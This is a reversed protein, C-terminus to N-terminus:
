ARLVQSGSSKPCHIPASAGAQPPTSVSRVVGYAHTTGGSSNYGIAVIVRGSPGGRRRLRIQGHCSTRVACSNGISLPLGAM